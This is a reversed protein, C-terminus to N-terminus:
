ASWAAPVHGDWIQGEAEGREAGQFEIPLEAGEWMTNSLSLLSQLSLIALRERAGARLDRKLGVGSSVASGLSAGVKGGRLMGRSSVGLVEPPLEALTVSRPSPCYTVAITTV